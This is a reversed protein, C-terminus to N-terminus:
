TQYYEELVKLVEPRSFHPPVDEGESLIRRLETGSLMLRHKSDHPCTRTSAMGECKNCWFTWDMKLAQIQLADQPIEDFIDQADFAGYYSGVGAHDRGVILQSCGYNQRFLAHLLAERPGAYRMDLPYGCNMVSDKVYYNEILADIAKIRIEAPVDGKKLNGLLSHILVGDSTELAIKVLHEHARHMPNRTQFATVKSWGKAVFQERTESPTLYVDPFKDALNGKTFVKVAGALYIDGHQCLNAVGPHEKDETSFVNKAEFSKDAPYKEELKMVGLVNGTQGCLQIDEGVRLQQVKDKNTALTIPIPWFMKDATQMDRCVGQWDEYGMFGSLPSFGGIGMMLLDGVERPSLIVQALDKRHQWEETEELSALLPNLEGHYPPILTVKDADTDASFKTQEM